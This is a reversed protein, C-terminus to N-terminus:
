YRRLHKISRKVNNRRSYSGLFWNKNRKVFHEDDDFIMPEEDQDAFVYRKGDKKIISYGRSNMEDEIAKVLRKM